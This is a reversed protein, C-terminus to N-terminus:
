ASSIAWSPPSAYEVVADRMTDGHIMLGGVIDAPANGRWPLARLTEIDQRITRLVHPWGNKRAQDAAWEGLGARRVMLELSETGKRTGMGLRHALQFGMLRMTGSPDMDDTVQFLAEPVRWCAGDQVDGLLQRNVNLIGARRQPAGMPDLYSEPVLLPFWEGGSKGRVLVEVHRVFEMSLQVTDRQAKSATRSPMGLTDMVQLRFWKPLEGSEDLHVGKMAYVLAMSAVIAQYGRPTLCRAMAEGVLLPIEAKPASALSPIIPHEANLRLQMARSGKPAALEVSVRESGGVIRQVKPTRIRQTIAEVHSVHKRGASTVRQLAGAQTPLRLATERERRGRQYLCAMVALVQKRVAMPDMGMPVLPMAQYEGSPTRVVVRVTEDDDRDPLPVPEVRAHGHEMGIPSAFDRLEGDVYIAVDGEADPEDRLSVTMVMEAGGTASANGIREGRMLPIPDHAVVEPHSTVDRWSIALPKM